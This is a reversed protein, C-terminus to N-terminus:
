SEDHKRRLHSRCKPCQLPQISVTAKKPDELDIPLIRVVRYGNNEDVAGLERFEGIGLYLHDTTRLHDGNPCYYTM